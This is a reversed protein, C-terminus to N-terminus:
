KKKRQITSFILFILSIRVKDRIRGLWARLLLLATSAIPVEKRVSLVELWFLLKEEIFVQLCRFLEAETGFAYALHKAWFRCSYSLASPIHKTIREELDPVESNLCYSTSLKCINFHLMARMTEVTAYALQARAVDLNVCFKGSREPNTLFDRFSTHLPSIPNESNPTVNSLLSGMHKVVSSVNTRGSQDPNCQRMINLAAISLPEFVGLVQGMISRFNDGIYPDDMKFRELITLYIADLSEKGGTPHLVREICDKQELGPPPEAIYSCAVFAWQFLGEAKRALRHLVNNEVGAEWLMTRMYRYVDNDVEGPHALQRDDMSMQRVYSSIPFAEMIGPEPRSTMLIRFNSPLQDIHKGLFTHFTHPSRRNADESEDLADIVILVPSVPQLGELPDVILSKFLTTFDTAALVDPKKRIITDLAAKFAPYRSCLNRALTTFFKYTERSTVDRIFCYSTALCGADDFKKAIEHAISSKGSGAQGFLMLVMPSSPDVDNVWDTIAQLFTVRTGELCGKEPNFRTGPM